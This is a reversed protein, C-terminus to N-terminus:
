NDGHLLNFRELVANLRNPVAWKLFEGRSNFTMHNKYKQSKLIDRLDCSEFRNGKGNPNEFSISGLGIQLANGGIGLLRSMHMDSTAILPKKYVEAFVNASFLYAHM